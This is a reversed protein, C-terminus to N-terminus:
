PALEKKPAIFNRYVYWIGVGAGVILSWKILTEMLGVGPIHRVAAALNGPLEKLAEATSEKAIEWRSLVLGAGGRAAALDQCAIWFAQNGPFVANPNAAAVNALPFTTIFKLFANTYSTTHQFDGGQVFHLFTNGFAMVDAYTTQPIMKPPHLPDPVGGRSSLYGTKAQLFIDLATTM